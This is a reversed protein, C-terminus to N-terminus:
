GLVKDKADIVFWERRVEKPKAVFTKM